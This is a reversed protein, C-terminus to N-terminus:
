LINGPSGRDFLKINDVLIFWNSIFDKNSRVNLELTIMIVALM